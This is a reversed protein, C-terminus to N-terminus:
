PGVPERQIVWWGYGGTMVAAILLAAYAWLSAGADIIQTRCAVLVALQFAGFAMYSVAPVRLRSLDGERIVLAAGVGFAILWAGIVQAALPPLPWPWFGAMSEMGHHVTLGGAFLVAGAVSLVVGQGALLWRLWGPIPVGILEPRRSSGQQRVVVTLCVLPVAAYVALWFWAAARGVPDEAWLHLRHAHVVTALLTLVTFVTVTGVAVRVHQWSRERLALVSLIFGAAYAAGLFAATVPQRITWAWYHDTHGGFLLLQITALATLLAFGILLHRTRPQVTEDTAQEARQSRPGAQTNPRETRSPGREVVPRTTNM